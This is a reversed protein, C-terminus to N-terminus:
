FSGENLICNHSFVPDLHGAKDGSWKCLTNERLFWIDQSFGQTESFSILGLLIQVGESLLTLLFSGQIVLPSLTHIAFGILFWPSNNTFYPLKTFTHIARIELPPHHLLDTEGFSNLQNLEIVNESM